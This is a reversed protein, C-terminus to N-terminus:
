TSCKIKTRKIHSGGPSGLPTSVELLALYRLFRMFLVFFVCPCYLLVLLLLLLLHGLAAALEGSLHGTLAILPARGLTTLM